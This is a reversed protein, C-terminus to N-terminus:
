LGLADRLQMYSIAVQKAPVRFAHFPIAKFSGGSIPGLDIKAGSAISALRSGLMAALAVGRGNYGMAYSVQPALQGIHPLSDLTVAVLGFWNFDISVGELFPFINRMDKALRRYVRASAQSSAGGRGGFIFRGDSMLRYYNTLRKSDTALNGQPLLRSRLDASMPSTAILASAVPVVRRKLMNGAATLDSYGNTAILLHRAKVRAGKAQVVVEDSRAIWSEVPTQCYIHVGRAKLSQALSQCYELPHIGAGRPELYGASYFDTGIRNAVEHADLMRPTRDSAHEALWEVDAEFRAVDVANLIPTIHGFREFGCALGCEGIIRELTDVAEHALRHFLLAVDISYTGALEPYTLKYRPVAVGGNRGSAGWGVENAELVVCKRGNKQLHHAASLGTFGAGIIAVDTELDADLSPHDAIHRSSAAWYSIPMQFRQGSNTETRLSM